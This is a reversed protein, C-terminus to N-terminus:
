GLGGTGGTGIGGLTTASDNLVFLEFAYSGGISGVFGLRCAEPQPDVIVGEVCTGGSGGGEGVTELVWNTGGGRLSLTALERVLVEDASGGGRFTSEGVYRLRALDGPRGGGGERGEDLCTRWPAPNEWEGRDGGDELCSRM